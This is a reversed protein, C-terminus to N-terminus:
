LAPGTPQVIRYGELALIVFGDSLRQIPDTEIPIFGDDAVVAEPTAIGEHPDYQGEVFPYGDIGGSNPFVNAGAANGAPPNSSHTPQVRFTIAEGREYFDLAALHIPGNTEPAWFSSPAPKNQRPYSSGANELAIRGDFEMTRFSSASSPLAITASPVILGGGTGASLNIWDVSDSTANHQSDVYDSASHIPRYRGFSRGPFKALEGSETDTVQFEYSSLFTAWRREAVFPGDQSITLSQERVSMDNSQIPIEVLYIFPVRRGPISEVYITGPEGSGSRTATMVDAVKALDALRQDFSQMLRSGEDAAAKRLGGATRNLKQDFESRIQQVAQSLGIEYKRQAEAFGQQFAQQAAMQPNDWPFQGNGM